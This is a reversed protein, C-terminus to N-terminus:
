KALQEIKFLKQLAFCRCDNMGNSKCGRGEFDLESFLVHFKRSAYHAFGETNKHGIGVQRM